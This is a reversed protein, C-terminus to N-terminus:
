AKPTWGRVVGRRTKMDQEHPTAEAESNQKALCPRREDKLEPRKRASIARLENVNTSAGHGRPGRASASPSGGTRASVGDALPREGLLFCGSTIHLRLTKEVRM